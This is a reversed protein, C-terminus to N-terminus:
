QDQLEGCKFSKVETPAILSNLGLRQKEETETLCGADRPLHNLGTRRRWM